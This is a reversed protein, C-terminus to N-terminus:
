PPGDSENRRPQGPSDPPLGPHTMGSYIWPVHRRPLLAAAANEFFKPLDPAVDRAISDAESQGLQRYSEFQSETFFQNLTSQHPFTEFANAYARVDMPMSPLDAPKLYLLYGTENEGRDNKEPYQITACAFCRFPKKPDTRSGIALPPDFKIEVGLDIRIKRIANGLDAFQALGDADADVVFIYRCRRRVMEYIGLDEFHGGDSLNIAFSQDDAMGALERTLATLANPPKAAKLQDPTCRAPNPLWAGLRVNFLTMLFAGGRSSYYGMSPNTAAGSIAMATGLTIGERQDSAGTQREDGAYCCTLVFTGRPRLEPDRDKDLDLGAAGCRLPTITFSEGKRENLSTDRVHTLNLTTNIVPFLKRSDCGKWVKAMRPNDAPDFGTFPDAARTQRASGLFARVLRNRYVAHMSFRNVNIRAGLWLAIVAVLAVLVFEAVIHGGAVSQAAAGLLTFLTVGFILAAVTIVLDVPVPIKKKKKRDGASSLDLAYSSIKGLYAASPGAAFGVAGIGWSWSRLYEPLVLCVASFAAWLMTPMLKEANLRAVWERDLDARFAKKRVAIYVFSQALHALVVSLPGLIALAAPSLQLTVAGDIEILLIVSAVLAAFSWVAFNQRFLDRHEARNTGRSAAIYAVEMIFFALCAVTIGPVAWASAYLRVWPAVAVPVLFAWVLIPLVVQQGISGLKKAEARYHLGESEIHSPARVVAKYVGRLLAILAVLLVIWPATNLSVAAAREWWGTPFQAPLSGILDITDRYFLPLLATAFFAPLFILWNVLVNRFWLVIGSWTDVSVIGPSPALFSTFRRLKRLENERESSENQADAEGLLNIVAGLKGNHEKLVSMLWGGIYGGGSVTSLYDFKDLLRNRALSQMVGLSFAASRIGGGSLCLAAQNKTLAQEFYCQECQDNHSEGEDTSHIHHYEEWLAGALNVVQSTANSEDQSM